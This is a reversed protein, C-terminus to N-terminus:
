SGEDPINLVVGCAKCHVADRDHRQLGRTPCPFRVKDPNLLARALNFFLTVGFIMIVVSILRGLTGPLTIDGFGTTTLATVTFYLADAYNTIQNNHFKQTEYVIATMVFIFVALNTVAFIVEENRRFFSSDVRLRELMQYDRLLRLTRLIRLFGGAEGALPALFSIIAIVDTWTSFRTFERLRHRSALLRAAFDALIGVGFLVDLTEIAQSSPLFSTAIIFVVTVIDFALLAYRFRVGRPTAGEYLERINSKLAAFTM